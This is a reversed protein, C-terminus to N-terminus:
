RGEEGGFVCALVRGGLPLAALAMLMGYVATLSYSPARGAAPAAAPAAAVPPPAEPPSQPPPIPGADVVLDASPGPFAFTAGADPAPATPSAALPDSSPSAAGPAPPEAPAGVPAPGEPAPSGSPPTAPGAAEPLRLTVAEAGKFVVQFPGTPAEVPEISIGYGGGSSLAGAVPTLDFRFTATSPDYAGGAGPDCVTGPKADWAMPEGPEWPEVIVCARLEAAHM